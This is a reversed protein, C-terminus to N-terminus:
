HPAVGLCHSIPTKKRDPVLDKSVSTLNLGATDEFLCFRAPKWQQLNRLKKKKDQKEDNNWCTILFQIIKQM